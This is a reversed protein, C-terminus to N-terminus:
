ARGLLQRLLRRSSLHRAPTNPYSDTINVIDNNYFALNAIDNMLRNTTFVGHGTGTRNSPNAPTDYFVNDHIQINNFNGGGLM